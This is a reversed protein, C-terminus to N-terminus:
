GSQKRFFWSWWNSFNKNEEGGPIINIISIFFTNNFDFITTLVIKKIYDDALRSFSSEYNIMGQPIIKVNNVINHPKPM